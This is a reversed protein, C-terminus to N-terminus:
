LNAIVVSKSKDDNDDNVVSVPTHTHTHTRAPFFFFRTSLHLRSLYPLAVVCPVEENEEVPSSIGTFWLHRNDSSPRNEEDHGVGDNPPLFPVDSSGGTGKSAAAPAAAETEDCLFLFKRLFLSTPVYMIHVYLTYRYWLMHVAIMTLYQHRTVYINQCRFQVTDFESTLVTRYM